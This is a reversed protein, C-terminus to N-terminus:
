YISTTLHEVDRVDCLEVWLLQSFSTGDNIREELQSLVLYVATCGTEGFDDEAEKLDCLHLLKALRGGFFFDILEDLGVFLLGRDKSIDDHLVEVM